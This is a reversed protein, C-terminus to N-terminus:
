DMKSVSLNNLPLIKKQFIAHNRVFVIAKEDSKVGLTVNPLKQILAETAIKYWERSTQKVVHLSTRSLFSFIVGKLPPPLGGIMQQTVKLCDVVVFVNTFFRNM